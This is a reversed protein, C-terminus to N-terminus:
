GINILLIESGRCLAILCVEGFVFIIQWYKWVRRSVNCGFSFIPTACASSFFSVSSTVTASMVGLFDFSSLLGLACPDSLYYSCPLSGEERKWLVQGMMM